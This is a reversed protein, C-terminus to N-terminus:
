CAQYPFSSHLIHLSQYLTDLFHSWNLTLISFTRSCYTRGKNEYLLCRGGPLRKRIEEATGLHGLASLKIMLMMFKMPVALQLDDRPVGHICGILHHVTWPREQPEHVNLPASIHPEPPWSETDHGHVNPLAPDSDFFHAPCSFKAAALERPRSQILFVIDTRVSALKTYLYGGEGREQTFKPNRGIEDTQDKSRKQVM